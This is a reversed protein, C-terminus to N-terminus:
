KREFPRAADQNIEVNLKEFDDILETISARFSEPVRTLPIAPVFSENFPELERDPEPSLSELEVAEYLEILELGCLSNVVIYPGFRPLSISRSFSSSTSIYPASYYKVKAHILIAKKFRRLEHSREPGFYTLLNLSWKSTPDEYARCYWVPLIVFTPEEVKTGMKIACRIAANLFPRFILNFWSTKKGFARQYCAKDFWRNEKFERLENPDFYFGKSLIKSVQKETLQKASM